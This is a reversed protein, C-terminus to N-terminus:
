KKCRCSRRLRRRFPKILKHTKWGFSGIVQHLKLRAALQVDAEHAHSRTVFVVYHALVPSQTM